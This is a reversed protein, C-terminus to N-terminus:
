YCHKPLLEFSACNGHLVKTNAVDQHDLGLVKIKTDLSKNYIDLAEELNGQQRLVNAINNQTRATDLHDRGLRRQQFELVKRYSDLAEAYSGKDFLASALNSVAAPDFKRDLRTTHVRAKAVAM